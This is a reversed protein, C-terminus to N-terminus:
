DNIEYEQSISIMVNICLDKLDKKFLTNYRQM